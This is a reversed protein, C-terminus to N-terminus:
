FLNIEKVHKYHHMFLLERVYPKPALAHANKIQMILFTSVILNWVYYLKQAGYKYYM